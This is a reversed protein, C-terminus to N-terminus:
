IYVINANFSNTFPTNTWFRYEDFNDFSTGTSSYSLPKAIRTICGIVVNETTPNAYIDNVDYTYGSYLPKTVVFSTTSETISKGFYICMRGERVYLLLAPYDSKSIGYFDYLMNEYTSMVGDIIVDSTPTYPFTIDAGDVSWRSVINGNNIPQTAPANVSNGDKVSVVEYPGGDVTFTVTHDLAQVGSTQANSFNVAAKGIEVLMDEDYTLEIAKGDYTVGMLKGDESYTCEMTHEVRDKDTLTITNDANYVIDTYQVSGGTQIFGISEMIDYTTLPKVGTVGPRQLPVVGKELLKQEGLANAAEIQEKVEKITAM